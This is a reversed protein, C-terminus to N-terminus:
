EEGGKFELALLNFKKIDAIIKDMKIGRHWM